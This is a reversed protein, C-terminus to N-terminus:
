RRIEDLVDQTSATEPWRARVTEAIRAYAEWGQVAKQKGIDLIAREVAITDLPLLVAVPQGQYTIIYEVKEERLKKLVETTQQRLERVGIMAM